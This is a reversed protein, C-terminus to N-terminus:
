SLRFGCITKVTAGKCALQIPAGTRFQHDQIEIWGKARLDNTINLAEPEFNFDGALFRPGPTMSLRQVAFDLMAETRQQAMPHTKGEPYGYVVSTWPASVHFAAFQIRGTQYLDDPWDTAVTRCPVTSAFGVGAWMGADSAQSRPAMPAGTLVNRYRSHMSRLSTQLNRRGSATLHAESMTLVDAQVTNLVNFKGHLGSPNCVGLTWEDVPDPGPVRAEGVRMMLAFM